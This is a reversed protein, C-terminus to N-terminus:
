RMLQHILNRRKAVYWATAPKLWLILWSAYLHRMATLKTAGCAVHSKAPLQRQDSFITNHSLMNNSVSVTQHLFDQVVRLFGQLYHSTKWILQNLRIEELLIKTFLCLAPFFVGRFHKWNWLHNEMTVPQKQSCPVTNPNPKIQSWDQLWKQSDITKLWLGGQFNVHFRLIVWNFLFIMKWVELICNCITVYIWKGPHVHNIVWYAQSFLHTPSPNSLNKWRSGPRLRWFFCRRVLFSWM